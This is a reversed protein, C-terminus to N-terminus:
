EIAALKQEWVWAHEIITQLEYYQPQWSLERKILEADAVLVAPDGLRRAAKIIPIRRQTVQEAMRIVELVSYGLGNGLNYTCSANGALLSKLALLHASCLDMIHVYDRVCSGDKTPYDDGFVEIAARRGSAVELVLPIIHSVVKHRAGLLGDPHAGAANFYRLSAYKLGYAHAYDSLIEEFMFKTQGYPNVPHRPHQVDVPIYQPEGYVAASSSFILVKVGYKVMTDLLNLSAVINNHYYKAPNSVSEAVRIYAAFHMVAIFENRAFCEELAITDNLDAVVLEANLVSESHGTALSDIVVAQYQQKFLLEVMHSGIYGAGGTVLIKAM